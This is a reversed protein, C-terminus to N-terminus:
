WNGDVGASAEGASREKDGYERIYESLKMVSYHLTTSYRAKQEANIRDAEQQAQAMDTFINDTDGSIGDYSIYTVIVYLQSASFQAM